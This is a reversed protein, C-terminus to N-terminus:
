GRLRKYAAGLNDIIDTAIMSEEGMKEAAIDGAVSHLGVGLLAATESDYGQALLGLIVGTLVDGSGATAMGSNGMTNFVRRGDPLAIVTFAGKLVVVIRHRIAMLCAAEIREATHTHRGTLRDLEGPHPTIITGEPLELGEDMLTRLCYLGDADIVMPAVGGMTEIVRRVTAHSAESRGLGPGVGVASVRSPMKTADWELETEGSTMTMAEPVATQMINYGSEATVTTLLGVGSRLCARSSMVAAGMMGKSGALLLAHGMTGKHVFRSRKRLLKGAESVDSYYMFTEAEEIAEAALHIDQVHWKGIYGSLEPLFFAMKPFQFTVTHTARIVTRYSVEGYSDEAGMGSPIDVSVIEVGSENLYRTVEASPGELDRKLGTGFLADVVLCGPVLEPMPNNEDYMLDTACLRRMMAENSESRKGTFGTYTHVDVMWDKDHLLLGLGLGDAGNNGPGSIIVIRRRTYHQMIWDCLAQAAREVLALYEIGELETTRQDIEKIDYLPFFKKM